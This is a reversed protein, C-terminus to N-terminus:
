ILAFLEEVTTIKDAKAKLDRMVIVALPSNVLRDFRTLFSRNFLPHSLLTGSAKSGSWSTTLNLRGEPLEVSLTLYDRKEVLTVKKTGKPLTKLSSVKRIIATQNGFVKPFSKALHASVTEPSPDSVKVIITMPRNTVKNTFAALVSHTPPAFTTMM